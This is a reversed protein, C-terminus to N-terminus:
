PNWAASKGDDGIAVFTMGCNCIVTKADPANKNVVVRCDLSLSSRGEHSVKYWMELIAGLLAPNEFVVESIKKTVINQTGMHEMAMLAASEDIWSLLKGGFLRGTVSLDPYMILKRNAFAYNDLNDLNDASM